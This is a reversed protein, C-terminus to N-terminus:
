SNVPAPPVVLGHHNAQATVTTLAESVPRLAMHHRYEVIQPAATASRRPESWPHRVLDDRDAHDRAQQAQAQDRRWKALGVRIRQMTVEALPEARDGIRTAPLSWDLAILAPLVVPVVEQTCRPCRYLYQGNRGYKGHQRTPHKWSQVAAVEESCHWCHAQPTFTLDPTPMDTRWFVIYLRDRSQPAGFFISNLYLLRHQYGPGTQDMAALWLPFEDWERAEVVNELVVYRYHFRALFHQMEWMTARSRIAEPDYECSYFLRLQRGNTRQKGQAASHKTCEPSGLLIDTAYGQYRDPSTHQLDACEVQTAPHNTAYTQCARPWHNIGLRMRLGAEEAGQTTGGAGCFLDVGTPDSATPALIIAVM